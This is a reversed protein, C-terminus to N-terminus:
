LSPLHLLIVPPRGNAKAAITKETLGLCPVMLADLIAAEDPMMLTLNELNCNGWGHEFPNM